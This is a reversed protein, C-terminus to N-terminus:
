ISVLTSFVTHWTEKSCSIFPLLAGLFPCLVHTLTDLIYMGPSPPCHIAIILSFNFSLEELATENFSMWYPFSRKRDLDALNKESNQQSQDVSRSNNLEMGTQVLIKSKQRTHEYKSLFNETKGPISILPQRVHFYTWSNSM